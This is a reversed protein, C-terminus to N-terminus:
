EQGNEFRFIDELLCNRAIPDCVAWEVARHVHPLAAHHDGAEHSQGKDWFLVQGFDSVKVRVLKRVYDTAAEVFAREGPDARCCDHIVDFLAFVVEHATHFDLGLCDIM